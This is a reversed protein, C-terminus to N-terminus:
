FRINVGVLTYNGIKSFNYNFDYTTRKEGFATTKSDHKKIRRNATTKGIVYGILVAIPYDSAWHVKSSMMQFAIATMLTYGVPKIWKVEPYNQTLVTFTAMFTAVHGSPMADYYPTNSQYESFSPFPRWNGGNVGSIEATNPTERGSIRKITQTLVGVSLLSEVIQSATSVARYDKNIKGFAYLGGGILLSFGGNGVYYVATNIDKPFMRVGSIKWYSGDGVWGIKEGLETSNEIIKEDLPLLILTSGVASGVQLLNESQISYKGFQYVNDPINKFMEFFTTKSYEFRLNENITYMSKYSLSDLQQGYVSSYVLGMLMLIKIKLKM